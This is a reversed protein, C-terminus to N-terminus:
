DAEPKFCRDRHSRTYGCVPVPVTDIVQIPDAAQGSVQTLQRQIAAKVQWLNAAQRVFLTRDLLRAFFHPYHQRFYALLDKDTPLKFYGRL